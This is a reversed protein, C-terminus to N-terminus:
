ADSNRGIENYLRTREDSTLIAFLPCSQRLRNAQESSSTLFRSLRHISYSELISGWEEIDRTAPGQDKELLRKVYEKARQLISTDKEIFGALVRALELLRNDTEKHTQPATPLERIFKDTLPPAGYLNVVEMRNLVPADAKTYGKIEITIDFDREVKRLKTRLQNIYGTLHRTEHM